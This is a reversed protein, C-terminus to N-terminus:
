ATGVHVEDPSTAGTPAVHPAPCVATHLRKILIQSLSLINDEHSVTLFATPLLKQKIIKSFFKM